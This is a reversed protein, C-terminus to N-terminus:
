QIKLKKIEIKPNGIYQVEKPYYKRKYNEAQELTEFTKVIYKRIFDTIWIVYPEKM